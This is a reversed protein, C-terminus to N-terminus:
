KRYLPYNVKIPVEITVVRLDQDDSAQIAIIQDSDAQIVVFDKFRLLETQKLDVQNVEGSGQIVLFSLFRGQTLNYEYKMGSPINIEKVLSDAEVQIPAGEGIITKIAVGNLQKM